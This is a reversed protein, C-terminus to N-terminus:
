NCLYSNDNILQNIRFYRALVQFAFVIQNALRHQNDSGFHDLSITQCRGKGRVYFWADTNNGPDLCKTALVSDANSPTPASVYFYLWEVVAEVASGIVASEKLVKCKRTTSHHVSPLLYM